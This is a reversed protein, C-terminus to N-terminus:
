PRIPRWRYLVLLTVVFIILYAPQLVAAAFIFLANSARGALYASLVNSFFYIQFLICIASTTMGFFRAKGSRCLILVGAAFALAALAFSRLFNFSTLSDVNVLPLSSLFFGVRTIGQVILLWAVTRVPKPLANDTGQDDTAHSTISTDPSASPPQPRRQPRASPSPAPEVPQLLPAAPASPVVSDPQNTPADFRSSSTAPPVFQAIWSTLREIEDEWNEFLDIWQRTALEYAFAESPVVDEVRAPIVTLNHHSALALEKKIEGSNNANDTFVLVMVKAARIARVIAEQFNEGPGVNRGAMWCALGRNELAICITQAVKRDKSSHSIFVPASMFFSAVRTSCGFM